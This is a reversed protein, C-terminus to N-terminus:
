INVLEFHVNRKLIQNATTEYQPTVDSVFFRIAGNKTLLHDVDTHKELFGKVKGAVTVSSDILNVRKGIKKQIIKKLLPYHTCGLILTDIQRVKLPHLYKKIIMTTEPKKLWGEEVLPVLLPCPVSYVNAEPKLEKIKSEYIGSKVTARTGIVGIKFTKSMKIVQEVAPAIVDFIPMDFRKVVDETAISSATNCAMVVMKAGKQILFDVNQLTYQVITARSKSGYPVRAIDGFYIFDYGPLKEMLTRLVTLGGIGSDFIGIMEFWIKKKPNIKLTEFQLTLNQSRQFISM